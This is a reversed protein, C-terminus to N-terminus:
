PSVPLDNDDDEHIQWLIVGLVAAGLLGLLATSGGGLEEAEPAPSATRADPAAQAVTGGAILAAAATGFIFKRM